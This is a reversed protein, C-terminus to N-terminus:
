LCFPQWAPTLIPSSRRRTQLDTSDIARVPYPSGPFSAAFSRLCLRCRRQRPASSISRNAGNRWIRCSAMFVGVGRVSGKLPTGLIRAASVLGYEPVMMEARKLIDNVGATHNAIWSKYTNVIVILHLGEEDIFDRVREITEGPTVSAVDVGFLIVVNTSTRPMAESVVKAM